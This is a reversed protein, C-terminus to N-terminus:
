LTIQEIETNQIKELSKDFFTQSLASDTITLYRKITEFVSQRVSDRSINWKESTYLNFLLPLYNKAYKGIEQRDIELWFLIISKIRFFNQWKVM